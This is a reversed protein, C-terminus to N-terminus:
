RKRKWCFQDSFWPDWPGLRSGPLSAPRTVNNTRRQGSPDHPVQMLLMASSTHKEAIGSRVFGGHIRLPEAAPVPEILSLSGRVMWFVSFCRTPMALPPSVPM